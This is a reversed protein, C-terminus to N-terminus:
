RTQGAMWGAYLEPRRDRLFLRRAHSDGTERLDIETVLITDVGAPARALV